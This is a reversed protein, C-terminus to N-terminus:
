KEPSEILINYPSIDYHVIHNEELIYYAKILNYFLIKIERSDLQNENIFDQLNLGGYEIGINILNTNSSNGASFYFIQPFM